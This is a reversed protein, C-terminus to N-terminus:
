TRNKLQNQHDHGRAHDHHDGDCDDPDCDGHDNDFPGCDRQDDDSDRYDGM